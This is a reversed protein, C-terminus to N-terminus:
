TISIEKSFYYHLEVHDSFLTELGFAVHNIEIV